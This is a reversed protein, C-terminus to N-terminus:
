VMGHLVLIKVLTKPLRSMTLFSSGVVDWDGDWGPRGPIALNESCVFFLVFIMRIHTIQIGPIHTMQVAPSHQCMKLNDYVYKTIAELYQKGNANNTSDPRFVPRM